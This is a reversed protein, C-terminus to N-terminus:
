RGKALELLRQIAEDEQEDKDTRKYFTEKYKRLRKEAKRQLRDDEKQWHRDRMKRDLDKM